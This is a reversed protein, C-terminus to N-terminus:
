PNSHITGLIRFAYSLYSYAPPIASLADRLAADTTTRMSALMIAQVVSLTSQLVKLVVNISTLVTIDVSNLVESCEKTPVYITFRM